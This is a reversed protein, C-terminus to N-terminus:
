KGLGNIVVQWSRFRELQGTEAPRTLVPKTQEFFEVAGLRATLGRQLIRLYRSFQMTGHATSAENCLLGIRTLSARLPRAALTLSALPDTGRPDVIEIV